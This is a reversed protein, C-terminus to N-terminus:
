TTDKLLDNSERVKKEIRFIPRINAKGIEYTQQLFYLM